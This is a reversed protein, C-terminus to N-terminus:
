NKCIYIINKIINLMESILIVNNEMKGERREFRGKSVSRQEREFEHSREQRTSIYTYIALDILAMYQSKYTYLMAEWATGGARGSTEETRRALKGEPSM